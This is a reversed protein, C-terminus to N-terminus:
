IRRLENAHIINALQQPNSVNLAIKFREAIAKREKWIPRAVTMVDRFYNYPWTDPNDPEILGLRYLKELSRTAGNPDFRPQGQELIAWLVIVADSDLLDLNSLLKAGKTRRALFKAPLSRLNYALAGLQWLISVVVMSLGLVWAPRALAAAFGFAANPPMMLDYRLGLDFAAGAVLLLVGTRTIFVPLRELFATIEKFMSGGGVSAPQTWHADDLSKERKPPYMLPCVQFNTIWRLANGIDRGIHDFGVVEVGFQRHDFQRASSDGASRATQVARRM